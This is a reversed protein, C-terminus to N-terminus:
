LAWSLLFGIIAIIIGLHLFIDTSKLWEFGPLFRFIENVIILLLGIIPLLGKRQALYESIWDLLDNFKKM